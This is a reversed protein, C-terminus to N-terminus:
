TAVAVAALQLLLQFCVALVMLQGQDVALVVQEVLGL